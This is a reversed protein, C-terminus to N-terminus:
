KLISFIYQNNTGDSFKKIVLNNYIVSLISFLYLINYEFDDSTNQKLTFVVRSSVRKFCEEITRLIFEYQRDGYLMTDFIGTILISSTDENNESLFDQMSKFTFDFKKRRIFPYLESDLLKFKEEDVDVGQYTNIYNTFESSYDYNDSKEANHINKLFMFDDFGAGFHLINYPPYDDDNSWGFLGLSDAISNFTLINAM